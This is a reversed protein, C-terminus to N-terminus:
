GYPSFPEGEDLLIGLKPYCVLCAKYNLTKKFFFFFFAFLVM